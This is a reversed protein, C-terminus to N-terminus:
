ADIEERHIAGAPCIEACVGCGTCIDALIEARGEEEVLAPCEFRNYCIGCNTCADTISIRFRGHERTRTVCAHRFIIVSPSRNEEAWASAERVLEISDKVRYPDITKIFGIGIGTLLSTIDIDSIEHPVPQFGTMATTANDLIAITVPAASVKANILAQVGSHFFTSDGITAIVPRDPNARKLAEAFTISAGMVLVSDVAELNTGLTYCGIDGTYIGRPLARRIAYFAPRHGCGACLRPIAPSPADLSIGPASSKERGTFKDMADKIMDITMEGRLPVERNWKGSIRSKDRFQNEMVPFTEELIIIRAYRGQVLDIFNESLPFPMDINFVDVPYNQERNLDRFIASPYGSAIVALDHEQPSSDPMNEAAVSELKEILNKHLERRFRPTAAWRAPDKQFSGRNQINNKISSDEDQRSHCVRMVPRIMVPVQYRHSIDFARSTLERAHSPNSPDLVPIRASAAYMRSDQETQSSYPGPDDASVIVLAGTVGTYASSFFPDAAVNLGVQKMTCLVHNGSAAEATAQELAIKENISWQAYRDPAYEMFSSLIESSPTGPYGYASVAGADLAGLAICQNGMLFDKM